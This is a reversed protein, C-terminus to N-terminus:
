RLKVGSSEMSERRTEARVSMPRPREERRGPHKGGANYRFNVGLLTAVGVVERQAKNEQELEEGYRREDRRETPSALSGKTSQQEGPRPPRRLAAESM